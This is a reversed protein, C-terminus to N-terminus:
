PVYHEKPQHEKGDNQRLIWRAAIVGGPIPVYLNAGAGIGLRIGVGVRRVRLLGVVGGPVIFQYRLM